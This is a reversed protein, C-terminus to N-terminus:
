LLEGPARDTLSSLPIGLAVLPCPNGVGRALRDALKEWHTTSAGFKDAVLHAAFAAAFDGTRKARREIESKQRRTPEYGLRGLDSLTRVAETRSYAEIAERFGTQLSSGRTILIGVSIAGDSHLRKFNDLDRDFFPDKNNWEIELAIRREQDALKGTGPFERVHDIEHSRSELPEREPRDAEGRDVTVRRELLFVTKRWGAADLRKRMRQTMPGEGGGGAILEAVPISLQLLAEELEEVAEPFDRELIAGAHGRVDLDFGAATLRDFM